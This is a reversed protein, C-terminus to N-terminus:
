AVVAMGLVRSMISTVQNEINSANENVAGNFNMSEVMNGITINVSTNRTGGTTISETTDKLGSSLSKVAKGSKNVSDPVLSYNLKEMGDISTGSNINKATKKAGDKAKEIALNEKFNDGVGKMVEASKAMAKAGADIGSLKIGATKAEDWAGSFDGKFLKAIARGAAGIGEIMAKIRDIVYDKIINGFDKITDWVTLVVARFGAFKNWCVVLISILAGIGTIILGIPNANMAVNWAWQAATMVKTAIMQLNEVNTLWKIAGAMGSVLPILNAFDGAMKGIEALYATAGGTAQFLAIKMNDIKARMMEIKGATTEAGASAGNYFQGGEETAWRFADAVMEASIAGKSMQEKLEGVSVGTKEAMIALPNFGANIMQLLDQGMLKGTSTMQSFALSLSSIKQTDGMAIDAINQLSGFAQDAGLGFSMMTKQAEVLASRSIGTAGSFDSIKKVLVDTAEADGKLLTKLNQQQKEFDLSSGVLTEFGKAVKQVMDIVNNLSIKDLKNQISKVVNNVSGDVGNIQNNLNEFQAFVQNDKFFIHIPFNVTNDAM